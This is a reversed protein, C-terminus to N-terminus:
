LVTHSSCCRIPITNLLKRSIAEPISFNSAESVNASNRPLASFYELRAKNSTGSIRCFINSSFLTAEATRDVEAAAGSLIEGGTREYARQQERDRPVSSWQWARNTTTDESGVCNLRVAVVM